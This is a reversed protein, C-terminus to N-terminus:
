AARRDATSDAYLGKLREVLKDLAKGRDQEPLLGLAREVAAAARDVVEATSLAQKRAPRRRRLSQVSDTRNGEADEESAVALLDYATQRPLNVIKCFETWKRLPGYLAKYGALVQGREIRTLFLRREAGIFQKRLELEEAAQEPELGDALRELESAIRSLESENICTAIADPDVKPLERVKLAAISYPWRGMNEANTGNAEPVKLLQCNLMPYLGLQKMWPAAGQERCSDIISEAWTLGMNRAGPGTEGGVIVWSIGTLNVAGLDEIL